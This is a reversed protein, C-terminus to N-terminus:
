KNTSLFPQLVGAMQNIPMSQLYIKGPGTVVTNFFGEGGLVKNKLGKVTTIDMTCTTDMAALYGTDIIMQQGAALEYEKVYGDIEVFATGNGSLRQMIFGEGGFLGSSLKRSFTVELNVTSQSCLFAGKQCIVGNPHDKMKIPLISGPVTSAFAITAGAQQARYRAMFISEGAFMRGLGSLLGGNTDSSMAIGESMWSMGGSQTIMEEGSQEFFIEVAPVTSGVLRFKM